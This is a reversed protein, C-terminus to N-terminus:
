VKVGAAMELASLLLLLEANVTPVAPANVTVAVPAGLGARFADPRGGHADNASLPSPVAVSDPVGVPAPVLVSVMVAVLPTPSGTVWAKVRVTSLIAVVVETVAVGFGAVVSWCIVRFAVTALLGAAPGTGCGEGGAGGVGAAGVGFAGEGQRH